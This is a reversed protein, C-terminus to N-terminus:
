EDAGVIALPLAFNFVAGGASRSECWIRGYHAEIISMSISLGVGMGNAKTSTLPEFLSDRVVDALGPGNDAVERKVMGDGIMETAVIVHSGQRDAIAERADRLLNSM